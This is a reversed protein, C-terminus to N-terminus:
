SFTHYTARKKCLMFQCTGSGLTQGFLEHVIALATIQWFLTCVDALVPIDELFVTLHLASTLNCKAGDGYKKQVKTLRNSIMIM